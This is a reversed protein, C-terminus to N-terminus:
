NDWSGRKEAEFRLKRNMRKLFSREAKFMEERWWKLNEVAEETDESVVM